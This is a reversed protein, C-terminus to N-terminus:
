KKEKTRTVVCVCTCAPLPRGDVSRAHRRLRRTHAYAERGDCRIRAPVRACVRLCACRRAHARVCESANRRCPSSIVIWYTASPLCRLCPPSPPPRHPRSRRWCSVVACRRAISRSRNSKRHSHGAQLGTTSPQPRPPKRGNNVTPRQAAYWTQLVGIVRMPWGDIWRDDLRPERTVGHLLPSPPQPPRCSYRNDSLRIM